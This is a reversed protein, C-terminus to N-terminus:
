IDTRMPYSARDNENCYEVYRKYLVAARKRQKLYEARNIGKAMEAEAKAKRVEREMQRQTQTIKYESKREKESMTPLPQGKYERLYHRCNLGLLGNKYVRGIKTTYYHDTAQELPVYKRGDIVGSTGDLSYLRGQWKACRDSCDAHSSCAVIKVGKAKLDEIEDIHGKYRVEMEALNRLSNRGTYDTPDLAKVKVLNDLTPQVKSKWVEAYYQQLPVGKALTQPKVGTIAELESTIKPPPYDKPQSGLFLLVSPILSSQQWILRQQNAFAILSINTDRKLRPIDIAKLAKDIIAKLERETRQKSYHYLYARKILERIDSQADEVALASQNIKGNAIKM